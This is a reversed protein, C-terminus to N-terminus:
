INLFHFVEVDNFKCKFLGWTVNTNQHYDTLFLSQFFPEVIKGRFHIRTDGNFNITEGILTGYMVYLHKLGHILSEFFIENSYKIALFPTLRGNIMGNKNFRQFIRKHQPQAKLRDSENKLFECNDAQIPIVM